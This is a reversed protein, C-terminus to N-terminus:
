TNIEATRLETRQLHLVPLCSESPRLMWTVWDFDLKLSNWYEEMGHACYLATPSNCTRLCM